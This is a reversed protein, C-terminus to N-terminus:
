SGGRLGLESLEQNIREIREANHWWCWLHSWATGAPLICGTEVCPKGTHYDPGNFPHKADLYPPIGTKANM